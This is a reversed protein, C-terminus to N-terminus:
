HGRTCLWLDPLHIEKGYHKKNKLTLLFIFDEIKLKWNGIVLGGGKYM